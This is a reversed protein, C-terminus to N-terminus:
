GVIDTLLPWLWFLIGLLILNLGISAAVMWALMCLDAKLDPMANDRRPIWGAYDPNRGIADLAPTIGAVPISFAPHCPAGHPSRLM